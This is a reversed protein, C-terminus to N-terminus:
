DLMEESKITNMGKWVQGHVVIGRLSILGTIGGLTICFSSRVDLRHGVYMLSM